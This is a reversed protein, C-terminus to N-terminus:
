FFSQKSHESDLDLFGTNTGFLAKRPTNLDLFGSDTGFLAKEPANLDLFGSSTGFLGETPTNLDLFVSNPGFPAKIPTNLDLFGSCVTDNTPIAGDKKSGFSSEPSCPYMLKGHRQAKDYESGLVSSGSCKDFHEHEDCRQFDDCSANTETKQRTDSNSLSSSSTYPVNHEQRPELCFTLQSKMNANCNKLYQNTKSM